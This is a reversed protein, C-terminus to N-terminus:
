RPPRPSQPRLQSDVPRASIHPLPGGSAALTARIKAAVERRGSRVAAPTFHLVLIGQETMAADRRLTREWDAPSLHWAKSDVEVAVGYDPWWADPTALFRGNVILAANYLPAPLRFERVLLRLDAEAVSRVGDAVEALVHRLRASGQRPGADLERQLQWVAVKGAQVSGAVLDRIHALDNMARAADAIARDLPVYNLAGDRYYAGPEISTPRLRVFGVDRQRNALPVLVEVTEGPDRVGGHYAIAALGTVALAHHAYLFAAMARQQDSLQGAQGAYVGPLAVQWPGGPRIRYRVAKQTM